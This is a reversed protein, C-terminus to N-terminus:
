RLFEVTAGQEVMRGLEDADWNTMRVCGHSQADFLSSPEPTGHIGYTPETLDIWTGGIPNNPGPPLILMEDNDGQQFNEDPDYTYNPEYAVAKVEHTGSPSPNDESGVAVPYDTLIEDNTDFARLRGAPVDIEIRAVTGEMRDGPAAVTITEGPQFAAGPNMNRLVDEDMHFREALKEPVSTYALADMEAREAYDQPIGGVLGSADDQTITYSQTIAGADPGSLAEWVDEDMVGDAELGERMEFARTATETMGGSYGDIIGPSVGARDLLVQTVFTIASQGDPLAGGDYTASEIEEATPAAFAPVALLPAMLAAIRFHM